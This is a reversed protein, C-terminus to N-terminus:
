CRLGERGLRTPDIVTWHVAIPGRHRIGLAAIFAGDLMRQEFRWDAGDEGLKPVFHIRPASPTFWFSALDQTLGKGTAKIFAEKLTWLRLFGERDSQKRCRPSGPSKWRHSIGIPWRSISPAPSTKSISASSGIPDPLRRRARDDRDHPVSQVIAASARWRGLCGAQRACRRRFGLGGAARRVGLGSRRAAACACCHIRNPEPCVLIARRAPTRRRRALRAVVRGVGRRAPRRADDMCACAASQEDRLIGNHRCCSFCGASAM